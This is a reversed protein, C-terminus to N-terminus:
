AFTGVQNSFIDFIEASESSYKVLELMNKDFYKKYIVYLLNNVYAYKHLFESALVM